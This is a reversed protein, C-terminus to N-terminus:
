GERESSLLPSIERSAERQDSVELPLSGPGLIFAYMQSIQKYENGPPKEQGKVILSVHRVRVESRLRMGPVVNVVQDQALHLQLPFM